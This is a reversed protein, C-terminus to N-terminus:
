SGTKKEIRKAPLAVTTIGDEKEMRRLDAIAADIDYNFKKAHEDRLMHIEDIPDDFKLDKDNKPIM